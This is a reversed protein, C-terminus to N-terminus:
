PTPPELKVISKLAASRLAAEAIRIAELGDNGDVMPKRGRRISDTFHELELKLPEMWTHNPTFSGESGEVTVRQDIYNLTIIGRTCTVRLERVKRPTLWNAEIFAAEGSKFTLILNAHDEYTHYLSGTVAYVERPNEGLLYRAIDIDHIALDMVVGVDGIRQPWSSVRRASILVIRGVKGSDILGKVRRVGPNFREVHGAMLLVGQDKSAKVMIEAENLSAAMPKEVLLHKGAKIAQLAVQAHTSSPTCITVAEVEKDKLLEANNQYWKVGYRKAVMKARTADIDSVAVLKASEIESIVRAHNAGWFGCGIVAIGVADM